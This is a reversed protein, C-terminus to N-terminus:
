FRVTESMGYGANIRRRPLVRLASGILMKLNSLDTDAKTRCCRCSRQFVIRATVGEDCDATIRRTYRGMSKRYRNFTAAYFLAHVHFM